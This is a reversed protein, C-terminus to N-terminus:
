ESQDIFLRDCTLLAEGDLIMTAKSTCGVLLEVVTGLGGGPQLIEQKHITNVEQLEDVLIACDPKGSKGLVLLPSEPTVDSPIGLFDGLDVVTTIEGRLNTIGVFCSDSQPIPTIGKCRVLQEVVYQTEIALAEKGIRFYVLELLASTDPAEVPVRALQRAREEMLEKIKEPSLHEASELARQAHDLRQKVQDWDFDPTPDNQRRIM